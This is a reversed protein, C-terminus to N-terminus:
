GTGPYHAGLWARGRGPLGPAVEGVGGGSDHPKYLACTKSVTDIADDLSVGKATLLRVLEPIVMSPHTDNIQIVAYKHLEKLPHGREELEKVILQAAASVMFYQQYVRLLRGARDSDDPYLFLTLNHLIDTKDFDIGEKVLSEDVTELDFM